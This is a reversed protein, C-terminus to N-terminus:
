YNADIIETIETLLRLENRHTVLMLEKNRRARAFPSDIFFGVRRLLYIKLM